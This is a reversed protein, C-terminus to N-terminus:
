IFIVDTGFLPGRLSSPARPASTGTGLLAPSLASDGFERTGQSGQNLTLWVM